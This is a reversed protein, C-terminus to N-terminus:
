NTVNFIDSFENLVLLNLYKNINGVLYLTSKFLEIIPILYNNDDIPNVLVISKDVEIGSVLQFVNLNIFKSNIVIIKNIKSNVFININTCNKILVTHNSELNNQFDYVKNKCNVIKILNSNKIM